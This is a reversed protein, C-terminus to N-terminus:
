RVRLNITSNRGETRSRSINGAKRVEVQLHGEASVQTISCAIADGNLNRELPVVGELALTEDGSPTTLVCEGVFRTEGAGTIALHIWGAQAASVSIAVVSALTM